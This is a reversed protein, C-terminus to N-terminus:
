KIKCQFNRLGRVRNFLYIRSYVTSFYFYLVSITIMSQFPPNTLCYKNRESVCGCYRLPNKKGLEQDGEIATVRGWCDYEYSVVTNWGTDVPAIVDGTLNGM